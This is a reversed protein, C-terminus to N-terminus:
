SSCRYMIGFLMICTLMIDDPMIYGTLCSVASSFRFSRGSRPKGAVRRNTWGSSVARGKRELKRVATTKRPNKATLRDFVPRPSRRPHRFAVCAHGPSVAYGPPTGPATVPTASPGGGSRARSGNEVTWRSRRLRRPLPPPRPLTPEWLGSGQRVQRNKQSRRRAVFARGAGPFDLNLTCPCSLRRFCKSFEILLTRGAPVLESTAKLALGHHQPVM